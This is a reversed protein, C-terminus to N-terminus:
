ADSKTERGEEVLDILCDRISEFFEDQGALFEMPDLELVYVTLPNGPTELEWRKSETHLKPYVLGVVDSQYGKGYALVQYFYSREPKEGHTDIKSGMTTYKSDLVLLIQGDCEFIHDPNISQPPSGSALQQYTKADDGTYDWPLDVTDLTADVFGEFMKETNFLIGPLTVEEGAYAAELHEILWQAITLAEDFRRHQSSLSLQGPRLEPVEISDVEPFQQELDYLLNITRTDTALESFRHCAWKLVRSIPIDNTYETTRFWLESPKQLLQPYLKKTILRGRANSLREESESYAAPAGQALAESLRDAYATALVDMLSSESTGGRITEAFDVRFESIGSFSLVRLFKDRWDSPIENENALYKPVIEIIQNNIEIQGCVGRPIVTTKSRGQIFQFPPKRLDLAQKWEQNLEQLREIVNRSVGDMDNSTYEALLVM